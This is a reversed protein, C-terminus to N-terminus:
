VGQHSTLSLSLTDAITSIVSQWPENRSARFIYMTPYYPSHTYDKMWRWDAKYPLILWTPIGLAGALHAISTDVTIVLDLNCIIAATDMFRGHVTDISPGFDNMFTPAKQNYQLSYLVIQPLKSLPLFDEPDISRRALPPRNADNAQDAQWCIGVKCKKEEKLATHWYNFLPLDVDLYPISSCANEKTIGLHAPLSMLSSYYDAYPLTSDSSVVEDAFPCMRAIPAVAPPILVIVYAGMKKIQETYRIFQICDGLAGESLLVIRKGQLCTKGDWRPYSLSINKKDPLEWRHEYMPWGQQFDGLALLATALALYNGPTPQLACTKEFADVALQYETLENYAFGLNYLVATSHPYVQLIEKYIAVAAEFNNNLAYLNGKNLLQNAWTLSDGWSAFSFFLGTVFFM